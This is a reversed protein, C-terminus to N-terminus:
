SNHSLRVALQSSHEKLQHSFQHLKNMNHKKRYQRLKKHTKYLSSYKKLTTITSFTKMKHKKRYQRLKKKEQLLKHRHKALNATLGHITLVTQNSTTILTKTISTIIMLVKTY